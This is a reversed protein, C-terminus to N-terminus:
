RPGAELRLALCCLRLAERHTPAAGVTVVAELTPTGDIVEFWWHGPRLRFVNGRLPRPPRPFPFPVLRPPPSGWRRCM